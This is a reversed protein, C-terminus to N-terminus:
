RKAAAAGYRQRTDAVCARGKDIRGNATILAADDKIFALRADDTPKIAPLPASKLIAECTKLAELDVQLPAPLRAPDHACSCLSLAM